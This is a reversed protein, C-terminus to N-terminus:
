SENFEDYPPLDVTTAGTPVSWIRLRGSEQEALWQPVGKAVLWDTLSQTDNDRDLQRPFGYRWGGGFDVMVIASTVTQTIPYDNM